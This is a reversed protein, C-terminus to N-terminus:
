FPIASFLRGFLRHDNVYVDIRASGRTSKMLLGGDEIHLTYEGSEVPM